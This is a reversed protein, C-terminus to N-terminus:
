VYVLSTKNKLNSNENLMAKLTSYAYSCYDSAEKISEYFVGNNVDMVLRSRFHNIGTNDIEKLSKSIKNRHEKTFKKGYMPNKSGKLFEKKYNWPKKGLMPHDNEKHWKKSRLSTLEKNKKSITKGKHAKSIKIRTEKSTSYVDDFLKPLKLNLGNEGLVNYKMGFFNEYVNRCCENCKFLVDIKHNEFGYKKLSNYIKTQNKVRLTKYRYFRDKLDLTSGIYVKKSPSTIKYIFVERNM